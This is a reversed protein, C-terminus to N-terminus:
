MEAKSGPVKIGPIRMAKKTPATHIFMMPLNPVVGFVDRSPAMTAMSTARM